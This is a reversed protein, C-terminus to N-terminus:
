GSKANEPDPFAEQLSRRVYDRVAKDWRGQSKLIAEIVERVAGHGGSNQTTFDSANKVEQCANAVAIRLGASHFAPLDNVDDGVFAAEDPRLNYKSCLNKLAAAKNKVGQIIESVGLEKMRQAVPLSTRGSIVAVILGCDIAFRIGMGDLINFSKIEEGSSSITVSGDTLVGDVDLAVLRVGKAKEQWSTNSNM